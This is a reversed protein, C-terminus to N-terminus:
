CLGLNCQVQCPRGRRCAVAERLQAPWTGGLENYSADVFALGGTALLELAQLGRACAHPCTNCMCVHARVCGADRATCAVELVARGCCMICM